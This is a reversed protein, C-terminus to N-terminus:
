HKFHRMGTLLVPVGRKRAVDLPAEDVGSLPPPWGSGRAVAWITVGIVSFFGLCCIAAWVAWWM